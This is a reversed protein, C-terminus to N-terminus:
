QSEYTYMDIFFVAFALVVLFLFGLIIYAAIREAGSLSGATFFSLVIVLVIAIIALIKSATKYAGYSFMFIFLILVIALAASIGRAPGPVVTESILLYLILFIAVLSALMVFIKVKWPSYKERMYQRREERTWKRAM